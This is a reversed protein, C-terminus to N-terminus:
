RADRAQDRAHLKAALASLRERVVRPVRSNIGVLGVSGSGLDLPLDQGGPLKGAAFLAVAFRTARDFREVVSGLIQPGLDAMNSGAGLGWVHPVDAAQLARLDCGGQGPVAFVVASGARIQRKATAECSGEGSTGTFHDLVAIGPHARLAGRRFGGVLERAEDTSVGGVVSVPHDRPAILGALYGGLYGIEQYDFSTGTVNAQGAFLRDNVSDPVLFRTKPFLHTVRSVAALHPTEAVVVFDSNLAAQAIADHGGYFVKTRVGLEKGAARLGAISDLAAPSEGVQNKPQEVVLAVRLSGAPPRAQGHGTTAALLVGVTAAAGVFVAAIGPVALRRRRSVRTPSEVPRPLVGPRDLEPDEQLIRTELRRLAQSPALGLEDVLLRRGRQYTELADAQRGSRYLALMLQGRLRERLPNAEVLQELDPVLESDRGAALEAEFRDELTALRVEELRAIEPQAFGEYGFDQLPPGRWLALAEAFAEAAHASEGSELLRRGETRLVDFRDVDVLDPDVRLVYGSGHTVLLQPAEGSRNPELAKRLQSVYVRVVHEATKPPREGWLEDVIRDVAVVENRHLLLLALLARARPGGLPVPRGDEAVELPGLLRFEM